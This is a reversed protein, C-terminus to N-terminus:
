WIGKDGRRRTSALHANFELDQEDEEEEYEDPGDYDEPGDDGYRTYSVHKKKEKVKEKEKEKVKEEIVTAQTLVSKKFDLVPKKPIVVKSGSPSGLPPFADKTLVPMPKSIM